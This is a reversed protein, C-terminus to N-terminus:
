GFVGEGAPELELIPRAMDAQVTELAAVRLRSEALEKAIDAASMDGLGRDGGAGDRGITYDFVLKAAQVRAGAPGNQLVDRTADVALPLLENTVRATQERLVAAQVAPDQAKQPGANNPYRYGAKEAAYRHDGTAAMASIFVREQPTFRGKKDPM